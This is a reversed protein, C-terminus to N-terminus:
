LNVVRVPMVRTEVQACHALAEASVITALRGRMRIMGEQQMHSLVRSVTEVSLGLYNAIDYRTMPLQIPRTVAQGENVRGIFNLLLYAVRAEAGRKGLFQLLKQEQLIQRSALQFAYHQLRPIQRCLQELREFSIECVQTRDLSKASNTHKLTNLGDFGFCDGVTLFGTIQEDGDETLCYTKVTGQLIMYISRFPDAALYLHEGRRLPRSHHIIRDLQEQEAANLSAPVCRSQLSCTHCHPLPTVAHLGHSLLNEM